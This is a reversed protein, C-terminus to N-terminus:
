KQLQNTWYKRHNEIEKKAYNEAEIKHGFLLTNGNSNQESWYSMAAWKGTFYDEIEIMSKDWFVGNLLIDFSIGFNDIKNETIVWNKEM